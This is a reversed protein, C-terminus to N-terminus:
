CIRVGKDNEGHRSTRFDEFADPCMEKIYEMSQHLGRLYFFFHKASNEDPCVVGAIQAALEESPKKKGKIILNVM